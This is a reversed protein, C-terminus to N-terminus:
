NNEIEDRDIIFEDESFQRSLKELDMRKLFGSKTNSNLGCKNIIVIECFLITGFFVIILSIMNAIINEFSFIKGSHLLLNVLFYLLYNLLINLFCVHM